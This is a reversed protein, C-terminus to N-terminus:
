DTPTLMLLPTAETRLVRLDSHLNGHEDVPFVNVVMDGSGPGALEYQIEFSQYPEVNYRRTVTREPPLSILESAFAMRRTGSLFFATIQISASNILSDNSILIMVATAARSASTVNHLLGTSFAATFQIKAIFLDARGGLFPQFVQRTVPFDSAWTQGLVYLNGVPDVAIGSGGDIGSGGLYTSFVVSSGEPNLVTIFADNTGGYVSQVADPTVPFDPSNTVGTVAVQGSVDLSIDFAAERGAMLGGLFTSYVLASGTPNMKTIFAMSTPVYNTNYAGPTVPFDPSYTQGTLYANGAEDIVIGEPHDTINGGFYTSYILESGVANLKAVFGNTYGLQTTQFAGPTIPFNLSTTRGAVFANGASDVAIGTGTDEYLGGLYTSYVLATGAPNLKSVFVNGFGALTPQYVDPTVPFDASRTTGTVYANGSDDIVIGNAFSGNSGGLYTSYVLATGSPNLKAVFASYNTLPMTQFAGLTTPFDLTDTILTITHGTVYAHGTSDVVISKGVNDSRRGGIYTSYLIETGAPNIKTVIVDSVGTLTNSFAGPTVPFNASSSYGTIYACHSSDLAIDSETSDIGSGGLFTSFILIPDIVLPLAADYDEELQFGVTISGDLDPQLIFRCALTRTSGDMEQYAVPKLDMLTGSPTAIFLNGEMDLQMEDAGECRLRVDEIRSGPSLHVDYKLQLGQGYFIVDIGAWVERYVVRKYLPLAIQNDAPDHGSLRNFTGQGPQQGEPMVVSQTGRFTWAITVGEARSQQGVDNNQLKWYTMWATGAGFAYRCGQMQSQYVIRNDLIQGRNPVFSLPIKGYSQAAVNNQQKTLPM